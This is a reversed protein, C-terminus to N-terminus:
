TRPGFGRRRSGPRLSDWTALTKKVLTRIAKESGETMTSASRKDAIRRVQTPKMVTNEPHAEDVDWFRGEGQVIARGAGLPKDFDIEGLGHFRVNATEGVIHSGQWFYMLRNQERDVRALVSKWNAVHNGLKDYSKGTLSVTALVADWEIRYFSLSDPGEALVREWWIGEVAQCFTRMEAQLRLVGGDTKYRPGLQMIREGIFLCAKALSSKLDGAAPRDFEASHLGRLDSPLKLNPRKDQLVLCRDRGLAGMFLGLEFVVNDRPAAQQRRRSTTRDDPTVVFLACDAEAVAKELSEIYTAGLKFEFKWPRLEARDGLQDQLLVQFTRAVDLGESSSAIFVISRTV